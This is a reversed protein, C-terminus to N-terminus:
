IIKCHKKFVLIVAYGDTILISKKVKYVRFSNNLERIIQLKVESNKVIYLMGDKEFFCLCGVLDSWKNKIIKVVAKKKTLVKVIKVKAKTNM